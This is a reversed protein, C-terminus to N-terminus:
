KRKKLNDPTSLEYKSKIQDLKQKKKDTNTKVLYPNCVIFGFLHECANKVDFIDEFVVFTASGTELTNGLRIDRGRHNQLPSMEEGTIKPLNKVYMVRNGRTSASRKSKLIQITVLIFM